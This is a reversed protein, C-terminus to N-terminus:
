GELGLAATVARYKAAKRTPGKGTGERDDLAAYVHSKWLAVAETNEPIREAYIGWNNSELLADLAAEDEAYDPAPATWPEVEPCRGSGDCYGCEANEHERGTGNCEGCPRGHVWDTLSQEWPQGHRVNWLTIPTDRQIRDHLEFAQNNLWEAVAAALRERNYVRGRNDCFECLVDHQSRCKPCEVWCRGDDGLAARIRANIDATETEM